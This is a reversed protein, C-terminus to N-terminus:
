TYAVGLAVSQVTSKACGFTIKSYYFDIVMIELLAFLSDSMVPKEASESRWLLEQDWRLSHWWAM